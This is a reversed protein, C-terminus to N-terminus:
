HTSRLGNEFNLMDAIKKARDIADQQGNSWQIHVACYPEGDCYIHVVQGSKSLLVAYKMKINGM